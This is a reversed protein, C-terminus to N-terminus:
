KYIESGILIGGLTEKFFTEVFHICIKLYRDYTGLFNVGVTMHQKFKM